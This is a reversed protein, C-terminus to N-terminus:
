VFLSCTESWTIPTANVKALLRMASIPFPLWALADLDRQSTLFKFRIADILWTQPFTFDTYSVIEFINAFSTNNKNTRRVIRM